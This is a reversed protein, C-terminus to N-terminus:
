KLSWEDLIAQLREPTDVRHATIINNTPKPLAAVDYDHRFRNDTRLPIGEKLLLRGVVLDEHGTQEPPMTEAVIRAARPTLLYGAGGHAYDHINNGYEARTRPGHNDGIYDAGPFGADLLRGVHVFTDDDCKFLHEFRYTALAWDCLLRTKQALAEYDDPCPVLLLDDIRLAPPGNAGTGIVFFADVEPRRSLQRMWGHRALNRREAHQRCSVAAIVVQTEIVPGTEM